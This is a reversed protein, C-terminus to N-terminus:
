LKTEYNRRFSSFSASAKVVSDLDSWVKAGRYAFSKQGTSTRLLPLRLDTKSNRLQRNTAESVKQFLNRLYDPALANLSKYVMKSTEFDILERITLWGLSGILPLASADYPSNTVIRAARNQLKQLKDLASAGCSGWVPCCYRFYPEILSRYLMILSEKPLYRKSFKLMGIGRSVKKITNSLHTSWKLQDDVQLGLYKTNNVMTIEESGINLDPKSSSPLDLSLLKCRSGIIMGQTKVVNLSLKNGELWGRLAELDANIATNIDTMSPSSYYITTDDAYMAVDSTKLCYPLDNVYVLFLLPGLCSGQPVGCDVGETVSSHGNVRCFQKRNFLYSRFWSLEKGRVGYYNLKNLLIEHDVTDFAKKLDIFVAATYRGKDINLYWDNTSKLLCTLVSHLKRFASQLLFILQNRNLYDYLQDFILKEFLRSIVPLVSIPRYNSKDDTAGDKFIPAVRAIKWSDPFRGLSLSLNFLQVLSPALVSIGVKLFFSSICDVGSGNSTKIGGCVRILTEENIPSFMFPECSPPGGFEGNLLPNPKPAIKEALSKGVNCFFSNMTDAISKNDTITEDGEKLAKINTTKSRKNIVQNMTKWTEKINGECSRLKNTFYQKKLSQNLNNAKCRMHKYASMLLESNAKVAAIKLKDRTRCIKKLEPTIWPCFRESVRKERLPAHKDIIQSLTDSWQGVADDLSGSDSVIAQWDVSALDGLFLEEDFNKMQRTTIMKHQPKLSGFYKRVVYVM